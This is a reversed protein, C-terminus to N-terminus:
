RSASCATRTLLVPARVKPLNGLLTALGIQWSPCLSLFKGSKQRKKGIKRRKERNKGIKERNKTIKERNKANKKSGPTASQGGQWRQGGQWLNDVGTRSANWIPYPMNWQSEIFCLTMSWQIVNTCELKIEQERIPGKIFVRLTNFIDVASWTSRGSQALHKQHMIVRTFTM